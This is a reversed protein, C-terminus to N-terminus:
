APAIQNRITVKPTVPAAMTPRARRPRAPAAPRLRPPFIGAAPPAGCGTAGRERRETMSSSSQRACRQWPAGTRFSGSRRRGGQTARRTPIPPRARRRPDRAVDRVCCPAGALKGASVGSRCARTEDNNGGGCGPRVQRGRRCCGPAPSDGRPVITDVVARLVLVRTHERAVGAPQM